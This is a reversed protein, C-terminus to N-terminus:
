SRLYSKGKWCNSRNCDRGDKSVIIKIRWDGWKWTKKKFMINRKLIQAIFYFFAYKM